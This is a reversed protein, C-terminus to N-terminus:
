KEPIYEAKCSWHNNWKCLWSNFLTQEGSKTQNLNFFTSTRWKIIQEAAKQKQQEDLQKHTLEFPDADLDYVFVTDEMPNYIYKLNNEVFGAPGAHIWSSFFVKRQPQIDSLMNMGDFGADKTEFGMIALLTPTLDVSSTPQNIRTGTSLQPAYLIMPIQLGEEFAIREHGLQGHEGFAEGHDGVICFITNAALNLQQLKEHLAKIFSDTYRITQRYRELPEKAPKGFWDPVEYPDHTVSCMITLLFPTPKRKIWEAIPELMTFEDCALYGLFANPDSFDERAYFEDFGLNHVLAPRAEFNGKASQFFATRFKLQSKLIGALSAYPKQIPVAESIDPYASPYRSTLLSFLAKTTHTLTSRMNTFEIGHEALFAIYPTLDNKKDWLSTFRYQVGELVIIVINYPQHQPAPSPPIQIQDLTPITRHTATVAHRNIKKLRKSFLSTVARLHCNYRMGIHAAAVPGPKVFVLFAFTAICAIILSTIIKKLFFKQNYGPPQARVLIPFFFALAIASPGLLAVAALPMKVLNVGIIPFSNLPSRFLPILVFPLIQTGTRIIWSANIVSWTCILAAFINVTRIVWRHPWRFCIITLITEISVLIAIDTLIWCLYEKILNNQLCHYFKAAIVSFLSGLIIATQARPSLFNYTRYIPRSSKIKRHLQLIYNNM